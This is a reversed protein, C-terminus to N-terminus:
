AYQQTSTPNLSQFFARSLRQIIKKRKTNREGTDKSGSMDIGSRAAIEEQCYEYTINPYTKKSKAAEKPNQYVWIQTTGFM